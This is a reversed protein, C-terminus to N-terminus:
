RDPLSLSVLNTCGYFAHAGINTVSDPVVVSTLGTCNRFAQQGITKLKNGLEISKLSTCNYFTRSPLRNQTFNVNDLYINKIKSEEFVGVGITQAGLRVADLNQVNFFAYDMVLGIGYAEFNEEYPAQAPYKILNNGDGDFLAGNRVSLNTTGEQIRFEKINKGRVIEFSYATTASVFSMVEISNDTTETSWRQTEYAYGEIARLGDSMRLVGTGAEDTSLMVKKFGTGGFAYDSIKIISSPLTLNNLSSCGRFCAQSIETVGSPLTKEYTVGGENERKVSVVSLRNCGNFAGEGIEMLNDPLAIATINSGAFASAPISGGNLGTFYSFEYFSFNERIGQFTTGIDRIGEAQAKTMANEDRVLGEDYCIRMVTPNSQKTMIVTENLVLITFSTSTQTGDFNTITAALTMTSSVPPQEVKNTAIRYVLKNETVGSEEVYGEDVAPGTLTWDVSYTGIPAAGREDLPFLTFTYEKNMYASPTGEISCSRAYTPDKVTIDVVSLKDFTSETTKMNVLVKFVTDTNFM